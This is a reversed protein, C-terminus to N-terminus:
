ADYVRGTITMTLDQSIDTGMLGEFETMPPIVIPAPQDNTSYQQQAYRAKMIITGNLKLEVFIDSNGGESSYFAVNGVLYYKGTKFKLFTTPTTTDYTIVGSYGYAHDGTISIGPQPGLFTAIQAKAM